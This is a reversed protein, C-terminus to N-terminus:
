SSSHFILFETFCYWITIDIIYDQNRIIHSIVTHTPLLIIKGFTIKTFYWAIYWDILWYDDIICDPNRDIIIRKVFSFIPLCCVTWKNAEHIMLMKTLRIFSIFHSLGKHILTYISIWQWIIKWQRLISIQVPFLPKEKQLCLLNHPM